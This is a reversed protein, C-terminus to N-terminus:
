ATENEDTIVTRKQNFYKIFLLMKKNDCKYRTVITWHQYLNEYIIRMLEMKHEVTVGFRFQAFDLNKGNRM